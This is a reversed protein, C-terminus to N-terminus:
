DIGSSSIRFRMTIFDKGVWWIDTAHHGSYHESALVLKIDYHRWLSMSDQIM